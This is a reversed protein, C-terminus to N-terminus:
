RRTWAWPRLWDGAGSARGHSAHSFRKRPLPLVHAGSSSIRHARPAVPVWGGLLGRLDSVSQVNALQQMGQMDVEGKEKLMGGVLNSLAAKGIGGKLEARRADSLGLIGHFHADAKKYSAAKPSTPPEQVSLIVFQKYLEELLQTQERGAAPGVALAIRIPM